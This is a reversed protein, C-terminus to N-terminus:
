PTAERQARAVSILYYLMLVAVFGMLVFTLAAGEPESLGHQLRVSIENGIMRIPARSFGMFQPTYYDGFMPLMIIVLGALIGNRSLPLTVKVFTWFPSAGLDRAAELLSRDIRDLAAFLPLIFYPIYGYVLGLIVTEPHGALWNRPEDLLGLFVLIDNVYGDTELLSQWAFMRMIYNIWFPALILILLLIRWRGARRAVYYAVPYGVVLCLASAIMVFVITRLFIVGVQGGFIEAFVVGFVDPNWQIPNWVPVAFHFIPDLRGMAVSLIAFFPTLFLLLLWLLGPGALSPWM